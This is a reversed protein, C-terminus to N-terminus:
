RRSRRRPRVARPSTSGACRGAARTRRTTSRRGPRLRGSSCSSSRADVRTGDRLGLRRLPAGPTLRAIAGCNFDAFLYTGDYTPPGSGPRCGRAARSRGAAREDVHGPDHRAPVRLVPRDHEPADPQVQRDHPGHARGRPVALRLRRGGARPRDGGVRGPRRRERLARRREAPVHVPVPQPLGLRVDGPLDHRAGVPGHQLAGHGRRPVPEDAPRLRRTAIRVIKGNLINRDRSADNAGGCGSDGAYDCGGDGIGAYLYGDPGVRVQGGNHNGAFNLVNDLLVLETAPDIM